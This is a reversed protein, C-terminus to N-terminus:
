RRGGAELERFHALADTLRNYRAVVVPDKARLKKATDKDSIM